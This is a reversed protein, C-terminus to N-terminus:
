SQHKLKGPETSIRPKPKNISAKVTPDIAEQKQLDKSVPPPNEPVTPQIGDISLWHASFLGFLFRITLPEAKNECYSIYNSRAINQQLKLCWFWFKLLLNNQGLYHDLLSGLSRMKLFCTFLLRLSRQAYHCCITDSHFNPCPSM